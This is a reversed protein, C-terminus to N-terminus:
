KGRMKKQFHDLTESHALYRKWIVKRCVASVALLKRSADPFQLYHAIRMRVYRWRLALVEERHGYRDLCYDYTLNKGRRKFSMPMLHDEPAMLRRLFREEIGNQSLTLLCLAGILLHGVSDSEMLLLDAECMRMTGHRALDRVAHPKAGFCTMAGAIKAKEVTWKKSTAGNEAENEDGPGAPDAVLEAIQMTADSFKRNTIELEENPSQYSMFQCLARKIKDHDEEGGLALTAVRFQANSKMLFKPVKRATGFFRRGDGLETALLTMQEKSLADLDDICLSKEALNLTSVSDSTILPISKQHSIEQLVRSKGTGFDGLLVVLQHETALAIAKEVTEQQQKTVEPKQSIKRPGEEGGARFDSALHRLIFQKIHQQLPELGKLVVDKNYTNNIGETHCTYIHFNKAKRQVSEALYNARQRGLPEDIFVPEHFPIERLFSADRQFYIANPNGIKAIAVAMESLSLGPRLGFRELFETNWFDIPLTYGLVEGFLHIYYPNGNEMKSEELCHTLLFPSHADEFSPKQGANFDELQITVDKGRAALLIEPDELLDHIALRENKFDKFTTILNIRM